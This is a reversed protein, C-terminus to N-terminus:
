SGTSDIVKIEALGVGKNLRALTGQYELSMATQGYRSSELGMGSKGEYHVAADGVKEQAIQPYRATAFHAALWMEIEQLDDDTYGKDVLTSTVLQNASRLFPTIQEGTLTTDMIELVEAETARPM